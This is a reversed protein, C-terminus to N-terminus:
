GANPWKFRPERKELFRSVAERHYDSSFAIGQAAAELELMLHLSSSQSQNLAAKAMGVAAASATTMAAAMARARSMLDPAAVIEMVIGYERATAADIERGTLILEKARQLGVIRPLTYLSACDPMLGIKMFSMCFRAAPTAIVIDALLATGFGGGYACGDVAAVVPKDCHYLREAKEVVPRMRKRGAEASLERAAEMGRIDGGACFHGGNGSLLIARVEDDRMARDLFESQLARAEADLANRYRPRNAIIEAVGDRVAYLVPADQIDTM